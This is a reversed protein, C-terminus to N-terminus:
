IQPKIQNKETYDDNQIIKVGSQFNREIKEARCDNLNNMTNCRRREIPYVEDYCYHCCEHVQLCDECTEQEWCLNQIGTENCVDSTEVLYSLSLLVLLNIIGNTVLVELLRM